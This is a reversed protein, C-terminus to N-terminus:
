PSEEAITVQVGPFHKATWWRLCDADFTRGQVITKDLEFTLKTGHLMTPAGQTFPGLARGHAFSM